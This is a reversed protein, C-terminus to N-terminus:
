TDPVVVLLKHVLAERNESGALLFHFLNRSSTAELVLSDTLLTADKAGAALFNNLPSATFLNHSALSVRIWGLSQM